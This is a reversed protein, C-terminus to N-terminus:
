IIARLGLASSFSAAAVCVDTAIHRSLPEPLDVVHGCVGGLLGGVPLLTVVTPTLQLVIAYGDHDGTTFTGDNVANGLPVIGLVTAGGSAVLRRALEARANEYSVYQHTFPNAPNLAETSFAGTWVYGTDAAAPAPGIVRGHDNPFLFFGDSFAQLFGAPQQGYTTGDILGSFGVSHIPQAPFGARAMAANLRATSQAASTATPDIIIVNIPELVTKGEHPVGGYDSIQGNPELLWTGVDGYPTHTVDGPSPVAPAAVTAAAAPKTTVAPATVVADEVDRRILELAALAVPVPAVPTDRTNASSTTNERRVSSTSVAVTVPAAAPETDVGVSTTTSSPTSDAAPRAGHRSIATTASPLADNGLQMKSVSTSDDADTHNAPAGGTSEGASSAPSTQAATGGATADDTTGEAHAVGAGAIAAGIGLAVALAGVRGVYQAAIPEAHVAHRPM